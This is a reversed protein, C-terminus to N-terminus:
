RGSHIVPRASAVREVLSVLLGDEEFLRRKWDAQATFRPRATATEATTTADIAYASARRDAGTV